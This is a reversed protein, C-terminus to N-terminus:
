RDRDDSIFSHYAPPCPRGPKNPGICAPLRFNENVTSDIRHEDFQYNINENLGVLWIFLFHLKAVFDCRVMCLRDLRLVMAGYYVYTTHALHFVTHRFM